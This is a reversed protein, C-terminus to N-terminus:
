KKWKLKFRYNADGGKPDSIQIVATFRNQLWPREVLLVDGRGDKKDLEIKKFTGTPLPQSYEFWDLKLPKGSLTEAFLRNGQLRLIVTGDVRGKWEFDGEDDRDYKRPNNEDSFLEVGAVQDQPPMPSAPPPPSGPQTPRPHRSFIGATDTPISTPPISAPPVSAPPISAPRVIPKPALQDWEWEVRVHYHDDGGKRDSIKLKATYQNDGTPEELLVVKGRGDKKNLLFKRFTARPVAQSYESGEDRPARGNHVDYRISSGQLFVDIEGDVLLRLDFRGKKSASDLQKSPRARFEPTAPVVPAPPPALPAAPPASRATVRARPSSVPPPVPASTTSPPPAAGTAGIGLYPNHIYILSFPAPMRLNQSVGYAPDLGWQGTALVKKKHTRSDHWGWFPKAKNKGHKRGFFSGAIQGHPPRPRGGYPQYAYFADFTKDRTANSNHARQWWHEYIPLLEYGVNRDNTHQPREAKGKYLYTVGTGATFDNRRLSFHAHGDKSGYVGHGGAEIFIVPHSDQYLEVDGDLGHVNKRVKRDARYSYINNHALTEMVQLQGHPGGDKAITLIMGENDNEHCTGVVCKDSYDRPHFFNYILFWHTETEMVAYHVYAQSSGEFASSWNNDGRWDGDLDFRALYDSKPQFWTEQAVFPAYHEALSRYRDSSRREGPFNVKEKPKRSRANRDVHVTASATKGKLTAEITYKGPRDAATFLVADQLLYSAQARGFIISGLGSGAPSYFAESESGQYRFAKSLWGANSNKLVVKAGGERLRVKQTKGDEGAVESYALVQVVLSQHPRVRGDAPDLRVKIESVAAQNQANVVPLLMLAIFAIRISCRM